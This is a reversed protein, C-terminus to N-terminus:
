IEFTLLPSGAIDIFCSLMESSKKESSFFLSIAVWMLPTPPIFSHPFQMLSLLLPHVNLWLPNWSLQPSTFLLFLPLTHLHMLLVHKQSLVLSLVARDQSLSCLATVTFTSLYVSCSLLPAPPPPTPSIFLHLLNLWLTTFFLAISQLSLTFFFFICVRRFCLSQDDSIPQFSYCRRGPCILLSSILDLSPFHSTNISCGNQFHHRWWNM